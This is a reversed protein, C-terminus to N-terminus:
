AVAVAAFAEAIDRAWARIQEVDRRDQVEAPTDRLMAREVFNHPDQPVRGGFIVHDRLNMRQARSLTGTPECWTPDTEADGVPGSSFMWLPRQGLDRELRRLLRRAPARWRKMYVASGLVVGDYGDLDHVDGAEALDVEIGTLRIEDAIAEAIEATSGHKSAYAVLLKNMRVLIAARTGGAM